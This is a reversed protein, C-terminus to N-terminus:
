ETDFLRLVACLTMLDDVFWQILCVVSCRLQQWSSAHM